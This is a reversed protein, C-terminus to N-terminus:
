HFAALLSQKRYPHTGQAEPVQGVGVGMQMSAAFVLVFFFGCFVLSSPNNLFLFRVSSPLQNLLPEPLQHPSISSQIWFSIKM